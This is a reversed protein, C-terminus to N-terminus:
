IFTVLIKLLQRYKRFLMFAIKLKLYLNTMKEIKLRIYQIIHWLTSHLAVNINKFKGFEIKGKTKYIHM